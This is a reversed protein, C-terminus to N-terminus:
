HVGESGDVVTPLDLKMKITIPNAGKIAATVVAQREPDYTDVMRVLVAASENGPLEGALRHLETLAFYQMMTTGVLTMGPPPFRPFSVQIAGRGDKAYSERAFRVLQEHHAGILELTQQQSVASM